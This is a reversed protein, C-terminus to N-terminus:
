GEKMELRSCCRRRNCFLRNVCMSVKLHQNTKARPLQWILLCSNLHWKEDLWSRQSCVAVLSHFIICLPASLCSAPHRFRSLDGGRSLWSLQWGIDLDFIYTCWKRACVGIEYRPRDGSYDCYLGRHFDCTDAETCSEGRQKACTKCCDCGDTVLSVGAACRPPSRPCECPWRCYQTRTYPEATAPAPSSMSLSTQGTAQLCLFVAQLANCLFPPQLAQAAFGTSSLGCNFDGWTEHTFFFSWCVLSALRNNM